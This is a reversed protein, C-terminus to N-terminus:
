EIFTNSLVEYINKEQIRLNNNKIETQKQKKLHPVLSGYIAMKYLCCSYLCETVKAMVKEKDFVGIM